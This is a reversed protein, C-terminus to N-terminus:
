DVKERYEALYERFKYFPDAKIGMAKTEKGWEFFSAPIDGIEAYNIGLKSAVDSIEKNHYKNLGFLTSYNNDGGLVFLQEHERLLSWKRTKLGIAFGDLQVTTLNDRLSNPLANVVQNCIESLKM